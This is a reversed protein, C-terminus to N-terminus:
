CSLARTIAAITCLAVGDSTVYSAVQEKTARAPAAQCRRVQDLLQSFDLGSAASLSKLDAV